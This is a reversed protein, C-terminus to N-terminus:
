DRHCNLLEKLILQPSKGTQLLSRGTQLLSLVDEKVLNVMLQWIEQPSIGGVAEIVNELTIQQQLLQLQSLLQLSDRLSGLGSKSIATLAEFTIDIEERDAIQSLYDVVATQSLSKFNFLQCRSVITPLVKHLETTCLIFITRAPPEELLKLLANQAASTLGHAEDIIFVKDRFQAPALHSM